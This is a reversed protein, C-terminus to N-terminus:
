EPKKGHAMAHAILKELGECFQQVNYGVTNPEVKQFAKLASQLREVGRDHDTKASTGTDGEEAEEGSGNPDKLDAVKELTELHKRLRQRWHTRLDSEKYKATKLTEIKTREEASLREDFIKDLEIKLADYKSVADGGLTKKEERKLHAHYPKVGKAHLLDGLKEIKGAVTTMLSATDLVASRIEPTILDHAWKRSIEILSVPEVTAPTAPSKKAM